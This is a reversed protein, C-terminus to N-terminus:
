SNWGIFSEYKVLLLDLSGLSAFQTLRNTRTPLAFCSHRWIDPVHLSFSSLRRQTESRVFWPAPLNDPALISLVAEDTAPLHSFSAVAWVSRHSPAGEGLNLTLSPSAKQLVATVLISLSPVTPGKSGLAVVVVAQHLLWGTQPEM